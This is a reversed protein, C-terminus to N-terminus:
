TASRTSQLYGACTGAGSLTGGIVLSSSAGSAITFGWGISAYRWDGAAVSMPHLNQVAGGAIQYYPTANVAATGHMAWSASFVVTSAWPVAGYSATILTQSGAASYNVDGSGFSATNIQTLARWGGGIYAWRTGTDTTVCHAGPPPSPWQADRESATAFVQVTRNRIENGWASTIGTMPVVDPTKTM